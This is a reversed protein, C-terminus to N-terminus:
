ATGEKGLEKGNADLQKLDGALELIRCKRRIPAVFQNKGLPYIDIEAGPKLGLRAGEYQPVTIQGKSTVTSTTRIKM